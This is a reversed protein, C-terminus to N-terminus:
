YSYGGIGIGESGRVVRPSVTCAGIRAYTVTIPPESCQVLFSLINAFRTSDRGRRAGGDYISPSSSEYSRQTGADREHWTLLDHLPLVPLLQQQLHANSQKTQKMGSAPHNTAHHTLPSAHASSRCALM